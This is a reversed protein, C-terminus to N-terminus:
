IRRGGLGALYAGYKKEAEPLNLGHHHPDYFFDREIRWVEHYMQNWEARPDAYVEMGDLTLAVKVRSRRLRLQRLRGSRAAQRDRGSCHRRAM